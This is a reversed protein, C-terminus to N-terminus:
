EEWELFYPYKTRLLEQLGVGTNAMLSFMSILVDAKPFRRRKTDIEMGGVVASMLSKQDDRDLISFSKTFGAEEAHRRLIRNCISHFTGAWLDNVDGKVLSRVREVMERAAKNTFTLLLINRASEGQDLLWSVRYTLTRTKGSGAGAIVLAKGPPSTVARYQEENLATAYDIGSGAVPRSRQLKYERAM